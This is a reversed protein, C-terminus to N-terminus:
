AALQLRYKQPSVGALRRFARAFNSPDEYGTAYAVDIIKMDPDGLLQLAAEFRAEQILKSYVLNSQALGRQLTRVSTGALEAALKIDPYGDVLYARLTQKLSDAFDVPLEVLGDQGVGTSTTLFPRGISHAQLSLMSRPLEIWASKQGTLMRTNPFQECVFQGPSLTSEFGMVNPHWDPGAFARVISLLMLDTNLECIGIHEMDLPIDHRHCVKVGPARYDIWIKLQTDEQPALRCVTELATRLTPTAHAKRIFAPSLETIKLHKRARLGLGDIGENRSIRALFELTPLLPLKAEPEDALLM